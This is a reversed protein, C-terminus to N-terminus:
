FLLTLMSSILKNNVSKNFIVKFCTWCQKSWKEEVDPVDIQYENWAYERLLDDLIRVTHTNLHEAGPNFKTVLAKEMLDPRKVYVQNFKPYTGQKDAGIVKFPTDFPCAKVYSDLTREVYRRELDNINMNDITHGNIELWIHAFGHHDPWLERWLQVGYILELEHDQVLNLSRLYHWILGNSHYANNYSLMPTMGKAKSSQFNIFQELLANIKDANPHASEPLSRPPEKTPWPRVFEVEYHQKVSLGAQAHRPRFRLQPAPQPKEIGEIEIINNHIFHQRFKDFDQKDKDKLLVQAATTVKKQENLSYEWGKSWSVQQAVEPDYLDQNKKAIKKARAEYEEKSIKIKRTGMTHMKSPRNPDPRGDGLWIMPAALRQTDPDIKSM